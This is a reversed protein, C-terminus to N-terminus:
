RVGEGGLIARRWRKPTVMLGLAM